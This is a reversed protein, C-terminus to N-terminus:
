HFNHKEILKNLTIEPLDECCIEQIVKSKELTHM